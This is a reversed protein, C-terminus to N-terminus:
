QTGSYTILFSLPGYVPIETRYEFGISRIRGGEDEIVELDEGRISEIRDIQAQRDFIAAVEKRNNARDKATNVARKVSLYEMLSPISKVAPLVVAIVIIIVVLLSGLSFGRSRNIVGTRIKGRRGWLAQGM